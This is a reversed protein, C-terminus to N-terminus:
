FVYKDELRLKTIRALIAPESRGLLKSLTDYDTETAFEIELLHDDAKTWPKFANPYQRRTRAVYAAKGTAKFAVFSRMLASSFATLDQEFVTIGNKQYQGEKNKRAINIDLANSGKQSQQIDFFAFRTQRQQLFM